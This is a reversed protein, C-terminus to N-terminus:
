APPPPEPRASLWRLLRFVRECTQDSGRLIATLLTLAVALPIGADAAALIVGLVPHLYGAAAEAGLAGAGAGLARGGPRPVRDPARRAAPRGAPATDAAPV